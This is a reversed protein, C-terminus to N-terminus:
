SRGPGRAERHPIHTGSPRRPPPRRALRTRFGLSRQEAHLRSPVAAKPSRRRSHTYRPPGARQAILQLFPRYKTCHSTRWGVGCLTGQIFSHLPICLLTSSFEELLNKTARSGSYRARSGRPRPEWDHAALGVTRWAGWVVLVRGQAPIAALGADFVRAARGLGQARRERQARLPDFLPTNVCGSPLTGRCARRIQRTSRTRTHSYARLVTPTTCRRPRVHGRPGESPPAGRSFGPTGLFRGNQPARAASKEARAASSTSRGEIVSGLLRGRGPRSGTPWRPRGRPVGARLALDRFEKRLARM